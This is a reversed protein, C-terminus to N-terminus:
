QACQHQLEAEAAAARHSAAGPRQLDGDRRRCWPVAPARWSISAALVVPVRAVPVVPVVLAASAASTVSAASVALLVALEASRIASVAQQTVPVEWCRTSLAAM